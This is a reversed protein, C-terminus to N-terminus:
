PPFVRACTASGSSTSRWSGTRQRPQPAPSVRAGSTARARRWTNSRGGIVMRTVSCWSVERRHQHPTVVVASAGVPTFAGTWYPGRILAIM